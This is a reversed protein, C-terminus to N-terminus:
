EEKLTEIIEGIYFDHFDKKPYNETILSKDAFNNELIPASYMKRCVFVLKAEAVAVTQGISLPHLGCAALKDPYNRGSESGLFLLEKRYKEDLVSLTFFPSQDIFAKTFRQPRVYATAVPLSGKTESSGCSWLCGLQGWSVTMSNFKEANGATLVMWDENFIKHPNFSLEDFNIKKFAM